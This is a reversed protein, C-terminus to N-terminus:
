LATDRRDLLCTLFQGVEDPNRLYYQAATHRPPDAVLITLGRRQLVRFAHEDTTDDGIYLPLTAPDCSLLLFQLAKGKNVGVPHVEVVKKGHLVELAVGKVQWGRVIALFQAVVQKAAEPQALRYPLAVSQGKDEVIVGPIKKVIDKLQRRLKILITSFAGRPLLSTVKGDVPCVELGHTGIYAIGQIPLLARLETLPRGSVIAVTVEPARVLRLLLDLVTVTPRADEPRSAIPVLTGDYDLAVLLWSVAAAQMMFEPLTEVHSPFISSPTTMSTLQNTVLYDFFCSSSLVSSQRSIQIAMTNNNKSMRQSEM